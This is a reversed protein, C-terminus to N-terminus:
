NGYIRRHLEDYLSNKNNNGSDEKNDKDEEPYTITPNLEMRKVLERIIYMITDADNKDNLTNPDFYHVLRHINQDTFIYVYAASLCGSYEKYLGLKGINILEQIEQKTCNKLKNLTFYLDSKTDDNVKDEYQVFSDMIEKDKSQRLLDVYHNLFDTKLTASEQLMSSVKNDSYINNIKISDLNVSNKGGENEITVTDIKNWQGNLVVFRELYLEGIDNRIFKGYITDTKATSAEPLEEGETLLIIKFYMTYTKKGIGINLTAVGEGKYVDISIDSSNCSRNLM